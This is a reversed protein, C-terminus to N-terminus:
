AARYTYEGNLGFTINHGQKRLTQISRRISAEPADTMLVLTGLTVTGVKTLPDVSDEFLQIIRANRDSAM